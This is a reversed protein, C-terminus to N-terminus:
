CNVFNLDCKPITANPILPLIYEDRIKRPTQKVVFCIQHYYGFRSVQGFYLDFPRPFIEFSIELFVMFM